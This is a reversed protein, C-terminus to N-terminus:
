AAATAAPTSSAMNDPKNEAEPEEPKTEEAPKEKAKAKGKITAHLKSFPSKGSKEEGEAPAPSKERKGFAFPLSVSRRKSGKTKEEKKHEEKPEEEKPTEETAPTPASEEAKADEKPTEAAKEKKPPAPKFREITKKYAESETVTAALEKAKAIKLKLQAVWNDRKATNATKFSHKNSKSTFHFKYSGDTKYDRAQRCRGTPRMM